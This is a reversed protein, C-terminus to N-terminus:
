WRRGVTRPSRSSRSPRLASAPRSNWRAAAIVPLARSRATSSSRIAAQEARLPAQRADIVATAPVLLPLALMPPVSLPPRQARASWRPRATAAARRRSAPGLETRWRREIQRLMQPYVIAHRLPRIAAMYANGLVGNPKVLVAMQGRWGGAGDPVWGVHLVGHM